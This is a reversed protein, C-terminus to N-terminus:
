NNDSTLMLDEPKPNPHGLSHVSSQTALVTADKWCSASYYREELKERLAIVIVQQKGSAGFQENASVYM